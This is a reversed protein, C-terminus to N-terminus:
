DIQEPVRWRIMQLGKFQHNLLKIFKFVILRNNYKLSLIVLFFVIEINILLASM